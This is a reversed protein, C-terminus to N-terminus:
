GAQEQHISDRNEQAQALGALAICLFLASGILLASGLPTQAQM